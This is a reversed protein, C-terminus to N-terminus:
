GPVHRLRTQFRADVHSRRVVNNSSFDNIKIGAYAIHRVALQDLVNLSGGSVHVGIMASDVSFGVLRWHSTKLRIMGGNGLWTSRVTANRSGCLTIPSSATGPVTINYGWRRYIGDALVILDGPKAAALATELVDATAVNVVRAYAAGACAAPLTSLAPSSPPGM